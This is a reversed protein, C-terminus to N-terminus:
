PVEQEPAGEGDDGAPEVPVTPVARQREKRSEIIFEVRSKPGKGLGVVKLRQPDIGKKVLEDRVLEGRVQTVEQSAEPDRVEIRVKTVEVHGALVRAVLALMMKSNVTLQPKDGVTRFWINESLYIKADTEGLRVLEPGSDPCGDEDRYYNITEAQNPCKDSIDAFGDHDNDPDPCGDADAFGDLDEPENPCADYLDPVGDGDNDPDPCGDKDAFGDKDEPEEPCKDAADHIGDGDGDETTSPCGDTPRKGKGDEKAEPCADYLDLIGDEDNDEEPCGDEDQFTDRDEPQNPCKDVVDPIADTDNDTDPCGDEDQFGDWDEPEDPCRDKRDIIGDRDRDRNDPAWGLGVFARALPSGVGRNLGFGGGMLLNVMGPLYFRMGADLEAPNTDVYRSAVRGTGECLVGMQQNPRLELAAGYLAALGEPTGIFQSKDRFLGGAMVVARLWDGREYELLARARGAVTKEGLFAQKDGTPLTAGASL